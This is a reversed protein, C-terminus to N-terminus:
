TYVVLRHRGFTVSTAIAEVLGMVKIFWRSNTGKRQLKNERSWLDPGWVKEKGREGFWVGLILV